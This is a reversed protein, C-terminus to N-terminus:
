FQRTTIYQNSRINPLKLLRRKDPLALVMATLFFMREEVKRLPTLISVEKMSTGNVIPYTEDSNYPIHNVNDDMMDQSPKKSIPNVCPSFFLSVSAIARFSQFLPLSNTEVVYKMIITM